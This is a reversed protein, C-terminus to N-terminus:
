GLLVEHGGDAVQLLPGVAVAADARDAEAPAAADHVHQGRADGIEGGRDGEVAHGGLVLLHGLDLRRQEDVVGLVVVADVGAGGAVLGRELRVVHLVLHELVRAGLVPEVVVGGRAVVLGGGRQGPLARQGEELLVERGARVATLAREREVRSRVTSRSSTPCGAAPSAGTPCSARSGSRRTSRRRPRAPCTCCPRDVSWGPATPRSAPSAGSSAASSTGAATAFM